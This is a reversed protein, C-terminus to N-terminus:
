DAGRGPELCRRLRHLGRRAHSKVTGLPLGTRLAIQTQTLDEYFALHLVQRQAAPLRALEQTLLLRDLVADPSEGAAPAPADDTAAPEPRRTRAGLADATKRRTIGVLWGALTGRDPRYTHRGRWAALFVQQTVDEAERADGLARAALAHVLGSWRRHIAALCHEDGRILGEALEEDSPKRGPAARAGPTAGPLAPAAPLRVLARSGATRVPSGTDATRTAHPTPAAVM